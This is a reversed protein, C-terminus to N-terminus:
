KQLQKIKPIFIPMETVKLTARLITEAENAEIEIEDALYHILAM